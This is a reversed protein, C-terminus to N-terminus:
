KIENEEVKNHRLWQNINKGKYRARKMSHLLNIDKRENMFNVIFTLDGIENELKERNPTKTDDFPSYDEYGHRIIKNVEKIVEGCEEALISLRELEAPTLNNFHKEM